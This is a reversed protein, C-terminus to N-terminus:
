TRQFAFAGLIITLIISAAVALGILTGWSAIESIGGQMDLSANYALTKTYLTYSINLNEGDMAVDDFWLTGLDLNYTLNGAAICTGDGGGSTSANCVHDLSVLDNHPLGISINSNFTSTTTWNGIAQTDVMKIADRTGSTIRLGITVLIAVIVITLVVSALQNLQIGKKNLKTKQM